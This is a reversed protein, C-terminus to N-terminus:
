PRVELANVGYLFYQPKSHCQDRAPIPQSWPGHTGYYTINTHNLVAIADLPPVATLALLSALMACLM